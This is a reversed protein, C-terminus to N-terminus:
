KRVGRPKTGLPLVDKVELSPRAFEFAGMDPWRRAYPYSVGTGSAWTVPRDVTLTQSAHDISLIRVVANGVRIRDGPVLGMGDSFYRSDAVPFSSDFGSGVTTTLPAGADVCPSTPRLTFDEAAANVFLPDLTISNLDQGSSLVYNTWSLLNLQWVIIPTTGPRYYDNYDLVHTQGAVWLDYFGQHESSINNKYVSDEVEVGAPNLGILVQARQGNLGNGHITNHVLIADKADGTDTAPRVQIGSTDISSADQNDYILNRRVIVDDCGTLKLGIKNRRMTNGQVVVHSSDDVWIGTESPFVQANDEALNGEIWIYRTLQNGLQSEIQIGSAGNHHTHNNRVLVHGVYWISIGQRRAHHVHNDEIASGSSLQGSGILQINHAGYPFGTPNPDSYSIHNNRIELNFFTSQATIGGANNHIECNTISVDNVGNLFIGFGGDESRVRDIVIHDKARGTWGDAFFNAWNAGRLTLDVFHLYRLRRSAALYIGYDQAWINPSIIIAEEGARSRYTIPASATGSRKPAVREVYTGGRIHVTDGAVMTNAAKQITRWPQAFTGPNGNNGTTSVYYDNASVPAALLLALVLTRM